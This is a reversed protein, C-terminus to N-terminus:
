TNGIKSGYVVFCRVHQETRVKGSSTTSLPRLANCSPSPRGKVSGAADAVAAADADADAGAGAVPVAVVDGPTAPPPSPVPSVLTAESSLAKVACTDRKSALKSRTKATKGLATPPIVSGVVVVVVVVVVAPSPASAPSSPSYGLRRQQRSLLRSRLATPLRHLLRHTARHSSAGRQPRPSPKFGIDINGSQLPRDRREEKESRASISKTGHPKQTTLTSAAKLLPHQGVAATFTAPSAAKANQPKRDAKHDIGDTTPLLM